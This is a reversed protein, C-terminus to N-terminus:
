EPHVTVVETVRGCPIGAAAAHDRVSQEGPARYICYTIIDGDVRIMHSHEWEIQPFTAAAAARRDVAAPDDLDEDRVAGFHREIMYTPM